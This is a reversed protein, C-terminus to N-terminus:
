NYTYAFVYRLCHRELITRISLNNDDLKCMRNWELVSRKPVNNDDLERVFHWELIPWLSVHNYHLICVFGRYQRTARVLITRIPVHNYNLDRMFHWELISWLPVDYHYYYYHHHYFNPLCHREL